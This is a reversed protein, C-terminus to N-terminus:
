GEPHNVVKARQAKVTGRMQKQMLRQRVAARSPCTPIRTTPEVAAAEVLANLKQLADARNMEQSRYNQAKLVLVGDRTIRQDAMSLLRSKIADPLSSRAIDFRLHIASSVKNVNQGGPGQSRVAHIELEHAHVLVKM